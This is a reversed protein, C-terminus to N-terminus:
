LIPVNLVQKYNKMGEFITAVTNGLNKQSFNTAPNYLKSGFTKFDKTDNMLINLVNTNTIRSPCLTSYNQLRCPINRTVTDQISCAGGFQAPTIIYQAETKQGSQSTETPECLKNRSIPECGSIPSWPSLTCDVPCNPLSCDVTQQTKSDELSCTGGFEAAKVTRTQTKQGSQSTLTAECTPGGNKAQCTTTDTWAGPNCNIPCRNLACPIPQSQSRNPSIISCAGGYLADSTIERTQTKQGSQSIESSECSPGTRQPNCTSSDTWSSM